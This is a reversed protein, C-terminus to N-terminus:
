HPHSTPSEPKSRPDIGFQLLGIRVANWPEAPNASALGSSNDAHLTWQPLPKPLLNLLRQRQLQTLEQDTDACAFHTYLGILKLKPLQQIRKILPLAEEYWVGLRGM